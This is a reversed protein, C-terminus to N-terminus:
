NNLKGQQIWCSIKQILTDDLAPGGDPMLPLGDAKISKLIKDANQSISAYDKLVPSYSGGEGHCAICWETIIPMVDANFQVTDPCEATLFPPIVEVEKIKDKACSTVLALTFVIVIKKM